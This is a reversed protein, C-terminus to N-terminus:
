LKKVLLLLDAHKHNTAAAQFKKALACEKLHPVFAANEVEPFAERACFSRIGSRSFGAGRFVLTKWNTSFGSTIRERRRLHARSKTDQKM